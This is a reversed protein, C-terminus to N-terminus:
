CEVTRVDRGAHGVGGRCSSGRGLIRGPAPQCHAHQSRQQQV